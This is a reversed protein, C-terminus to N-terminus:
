TKPPVTGCEPCRDPTGRLDYGCVTCYGKRQIARNEKAMLTFLTVYLSVAGLVCGLVVIRMHYHVFLVAGGSFVLAPLGYRLWLALRRRLPLVWEAM